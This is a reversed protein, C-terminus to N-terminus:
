ADEGDPSAPLPVVEGSEEAVLTKIAELMEKVHKDRSNRDGCLRSENNIFAALKTEEDYPVIGSVYVVVEAYAPSYVRGGIKYRVGKEFGVGLISQGNKGSAYDRLITTINTEYAYSKTSVLIRSDDAIALKFRAKGNRRDRIFDSFLNQVKSVTLAM